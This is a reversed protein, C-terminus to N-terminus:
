KWRNEGVEDKYFPHDYYWDPIEEQLYERRWSSYGEYICETKALCNCSNDKFKWNTYEDSTAPSPISGGVKPYHVRHAVM